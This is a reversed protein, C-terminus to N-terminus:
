NVTSATAPIHRLPRYGDTDLKALEGDIDVTITGFFNVNDHHTPWLHALVEDQILHGGARMEAIARGYYESIWTVIANTAITLCWAQETQQEPNRHRIAGESAYFLDRRLAHLNEGKNLQRAIKRRYTEDSLFQAAHITRRLAGYEKIAASLANQQRKSSCLKGVVLAATAHGFKVSAAIRLLDDWHTTILETNLRRTLLPGARPYRATFDARPGTRYLTIGGLDRIRPSLQKGVLDFLAFNALSAGHTDTAHEAIPLDTANGLIEDLVYHSEPATAAIVKTGYTSHQDSVHTYTSIGQGRAFYRSMARATISKGKTPFRQGDSSSLAGPGFVQSLPLGHHHNVITTNATRLTEERLHWENTWALVDYPVGCAEAMATLGMNTAEAILVYILNRKLEGSRTVKGGAHSLSDLFGTRADVEVLLAAVSIRPLLAALQDRLEDAEAPVSEATLRPIVLEGNETLRVAGVGGAAGLLPDLETLAANLEDEAAALADAAAPPKGVLRCFESRQPEWQAPTLLFSAPDAYRRSGPVFVDGCRLGDRLGLLVCLEWYRRYATVDGAAAAAELYGRRRHPVFDTPAGDPVKRGGTAYLGSLVTVGDLLSRVEAGGDFRVAALVEPAFRRLYSLSADLSSLHGHDRPLRATKAAVAARLRDMGLGRLLSGVQEDPVGVDILVVLLDDLLAQRDGGAKAREALAEIMKQKAHSERASISQDFLALVEDLVDVASQALLTLLIPYRRQPDRRVLQQASLRRGLAALFRRREAPLMSLDLEHADLGRLYRLKELEVTVAAPSPQTAGRGLWHLRTFGVLPDVVLLRDLEAARTPEVLHAVRQWTEARSKERAAAVRMLVTVVGPRVVRSSALYECGLRFLLKPPDHEMARAFLFEDLERWQFEEALRWGLYRAVERLHDTRTQERSGYDVLEGVPIRLRESLRAVAVPPASVVDDPVFGLWPLSCLQVAAGLRNAAGHRAVVFAEDAPTLTFYRILEERSIDPFRRLQDLEEDTFVDRTAM